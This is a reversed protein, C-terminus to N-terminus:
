KKLNSVVTDVYANLQSGLNCVKIQEQYAMRYPQLSTIDVLVIDLCNATMLNTDAAFTSHKSLNLYQNFKKIDVIFNVFDAENIGLQKYGISELLQIKNGMMGDKKHKKNLLQFLNCLRLILSNGLLIVKGTFDGVRDIYADLDTPSDTVKTIFFPKQNTMTVIIFFGEM